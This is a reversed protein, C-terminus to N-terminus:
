LLRKLPKNNLYKKIYKIAVEQTAFFAAWEKSKLYELWENQDKLHQGAKLKGDKKYPTEGKLELALGVYYITPEFILMDPFGAKYKLGKTRMGSVKSRNEGDLSSYFWVKPYQLKLFKAVNKHVLTEPVKVRNVAKTMNFYPHDKASIFVM